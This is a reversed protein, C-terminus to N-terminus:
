NNIIFKPGEVLKCVVVICDDVERTVDGVDDGAFDVVNWIIVAGELEGQLVGSVCCILGLIDAVDVLGCDKVVIALLLLLVATLVPPIKDDTLLPSTKDGLNCVLMVPCLEGPCFILWNCCAVAVDDLVDAVVM